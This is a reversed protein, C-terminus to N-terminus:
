GPITFPAARSESRYGVACWCPSESFVIREFGASEMMSSIQGRTFRKEIKTGFRDLADTRMSYFSRSKYASLPFMSVDVGLGDFLKSIRALPWYVLAAILDCLPSRIAFPLGSILRRVADSIRWLLRFWTPRNDFAYYLYILFPAGPKLKRACDNMGQQTDPIHHLVGLSYGFDASSDALPMADVSASYFRCNTHMRLNRRAIELAADSADICHLLGVRRAVFHAWRGTGCGLDFGEARPPLDNWPFISFYAEFLTQLEPNERDAHNFKSWEEGFGRVVRPHINSM